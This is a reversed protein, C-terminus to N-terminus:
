KQSGPFQMLASPVSYKGELQGTFIGAMAQYLPLPYLFEDLHRAEGARILHRELVRFVQVAVISGNVEDSVPDLEPGIGQALVAGVQWPRALEKAGV